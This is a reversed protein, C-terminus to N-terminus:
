TKKKTKIVEIKGERKGEIIHELFWTRRLIHGIWNDRSDKVYGSLFFELSM